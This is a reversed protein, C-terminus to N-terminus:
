DLVFSFCLSLGLSLFFSLLGRIEGGGDGVVKMTTPDKNWSKFLTYIAAPSTLTAYMM